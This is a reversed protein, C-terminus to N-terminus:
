LPLWNNQFPSWFTVLLRAVTVRHGGRGPSGHNSAPPHPGCLRRCRACPLRARGRKRSTVSARPGSSPSFAVNWEPWRSRPTMTGQGPERGGASSPTTSDSCLGTPVSPSTQATEVAVPLGAPKLSSPPEAHACHGGACLSRPRPTSSAPPLATLAGRGVLQVTAAPRGWHSPRQQRLASLPWLAPGRHGALVTDDAEMVATVALEACSSM